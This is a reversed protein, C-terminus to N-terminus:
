CAKWYGGREHELPHESALERLARCVSDPNVGTRQSLQAVTVWSPEAQLEALVRDKVRIRDRTRPRRVDLLVGAWMGTTERNDAAYNSCELQVTCRVCVAKAQATTQGQEPYWWATPKGKCAANDQWRTVIQGGM